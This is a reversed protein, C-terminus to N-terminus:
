EKKGSFPVIPLGSLNVEGKIDKSDITASFTGELNQGQVNAAMEASLTNGEIKINSLTATGLITELAGKYKDGEKSITLTGDLDQGPAALTLRWKGAFAEDKKAEPPKDKPPDQAVFAPAYFFTTLGLVLCLKVFKKLM